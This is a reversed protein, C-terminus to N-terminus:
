IDDTIHESDDTDFTDVSVHSKLNVPARFEEKSTKMKKVKVTESVRGRKPCTYTIITEYELEVNEDKKAQKKRGM